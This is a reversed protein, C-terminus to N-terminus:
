DLLYNIFSLIMAPFIYQMTTLNWSIVVSVLRNHDNFSLSAGLTVYSTLPLALILALDEVDWDSTLARRGRPVIYELHPFNEM